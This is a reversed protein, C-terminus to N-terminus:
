ESIYTTVNWTFTNNWSIEPHTVYIYRPFGRGWVFKLSVQMVRFIAMVTVSQQRTNALESIVWHTTSSIYRITPDQHFALPRKILEFRALNVTSLETNGGSSSTTIGFGKFYNWPPTNLIQDWFAGDWKFRVSVPFSTPKILACM